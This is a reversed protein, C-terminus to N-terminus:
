AKPQTSYSINVPCTGNRASVGTAVIYRCTFSSGGGGDEIRGTGGASSVITIRHRAFSGLFRNPEASSRSSASSAAGSPPINVAGRTGTPPSASVRGTSGTPSRVASIGGIGREGRRALLGHYRLTGARHNATAPTTASRPSAANARADVSSSSRGRCAARSAPLDTDSCTGSDVGGDTASAHVSRM